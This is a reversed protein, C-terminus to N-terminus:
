ATEGFRLWEELFLMGMMSATRCGGCLRAAIKHRMYVLLNIEGHGDEHHMIVLNQEDMMALEALPQRETPVDLQLLFRFLSSQAFGFFLATEVDFEDTFARGRGAGAGAGQDGGTKQVDVADAIGVLVDTEDVPRTGLAAGHGQGFFFVVGNTPRGGGFQVGELWGHGVCHFPIAEFGDVLNGGDRRVSDM